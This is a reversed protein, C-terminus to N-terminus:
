LCPYSPYTIPEALDHCPLLHIIALCCYVYKIIVGPHQLVFVLDHLTQTSWNSYVGQFRSKYPTPTHLLSCCSVRSSSQCYEALFHLLTGTFALFFFGPLCVHIQTEYDQLSIPKAFHKMLVFLAGTLWTKWVKLICVIHNPSFCHLFMSPVKLILM